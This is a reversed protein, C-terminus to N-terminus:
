SKEISPFTMPNTQQPFDILDEGSVMTKVM